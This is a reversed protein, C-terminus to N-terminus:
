AAMNIVMNLDTGRRMTLDHITKETLGDSVVLTFKGTHIGEMEFEGDWTAVTEKNEGVVKLTAGPVAIGNKEVKGTLKNHRTGDNVLKMANKVSAFFKPESTKFTLMFKELVALQTMGKKVLESLQKTANKVVQITDRTKPMIVLYAANDTTTSTVVIAPVNYSPLDAIYLNANTLVVEVTNYFNIASMQNLESENYNVDDFLQNNGTALALAQLGGIITIAKGTILVRLAKKAISIGKSSQKQVQGVTFISANTGKLGNVVSQMPIITSWLASNDTMVLLVSTFVKSHNQVSHNM